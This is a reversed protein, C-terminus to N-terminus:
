APETQAASDVSVITSEPVESEKEPEARLLAKVSLVMTTVLYSEGDDEGVVSTRVRTSGRVSAAEGDGFRYYSSRTSRRDLLKLVKDTLKTEVCPLRYFLSLTVNGRGLKPSYSAELVVRDDLGPRITGQSLDWFAESMGALM